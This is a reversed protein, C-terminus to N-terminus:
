NKTYSGIRIYETKEFKAPQFVARYIILVGINKNNLITKHFEFHTNSSLLSRLWNELEQNGKKINQLDKDTGIIEHTTDNVGWIMYACTKEHLTAGNALASIDKGIMEPYYNNHKFELWPTENPLKCLEIVLKDLNEM